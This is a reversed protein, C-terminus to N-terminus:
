AEIVSKRGGGDASRVHKHGAPSERRFRVWGALEGGRAGGSWSIMRAVWEGFATVAFQVRGM